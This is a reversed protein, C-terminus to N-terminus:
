YINIFVDEEPRMWQAWQMWSLDFLGRLAANLIGIKPSGLMIWSVTFLIGPIVLPIISLAFFLRKFPTNTRENMWALATGLCLSFAATGVAFQVSNFFLRFTEASFYATQFNELTFVAPRSATQPTLFSQWLLFVLPVLSLWVVLAIPVGILIWKSDLRQWFAVQADPLPSTRTVAEAM